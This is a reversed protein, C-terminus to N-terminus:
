FDFCRGNREWDGYRTPELGKPGGTETAGDKADTEATSTPADKTDSPDTANTKDDTM